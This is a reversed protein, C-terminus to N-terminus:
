GYLRLRVSFSLRFSFLARGFFLAVHCETDRTQFYEELNKKLEESELKEDDVIAFKMRDM